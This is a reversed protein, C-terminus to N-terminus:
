VARSRSRSDGQGHHRTGERVSQNGAGTIKTALVVDRRRHPNKAFWTGIIEETRGSRELGGMFPYMEATDWFTVGQSLAYDM